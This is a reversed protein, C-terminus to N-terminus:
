SSFATIRSAQTKGEVDDPMLAICYQRSQLCLAGRICCKSMCKQETAHIQNWHRVQIEEWFIFSPQSLFYHPCIRVKM